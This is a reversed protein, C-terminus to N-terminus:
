SATEFRPTQRFKYLQQPKCGEFEYVQDFFVARGSYADPGIAKPKQSGQKEQGIRAYDSVDHEDDRLNQIQDCDARDENIWSPILVFKAYHM